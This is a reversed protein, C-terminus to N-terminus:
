KQMRSNIPKSKFVVDNLKVIEKYVHNLQPQVTPRTIRSKNVISKNISKLRRSQNELLSKIM